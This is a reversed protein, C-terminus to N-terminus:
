TTWYAPEAWGEMPQEWEYVRYEQARASGGACFLAVAGAIALSRTLASM